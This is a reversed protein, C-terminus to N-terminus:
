GARRLKGRVTDGSVGLVAGIERYSKGQKKLELARGADFSIVGPAQQETTAESYATVMVNRKLNPDWVKFQQEKVKGSKLAPRLHDRVREPSCDLQAAITDRSDWGKPLVFTRANEKEVLTKWNM